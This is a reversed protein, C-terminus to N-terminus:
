HNRHWAAVAKAYEAKKLKLAEDIKSTLQMDEINLVEMIKQMNNTVALKRVYEEMNISKNRNYFSSLSDREVRIEKALAWIEKKNKASAFYTLWEEMYREEFYNKIEEDLKKLREREEAEKIKALKEKEACESCNITRHERRRNWVDMEVVETYTGKGCSCPYDRSYMEEWSM